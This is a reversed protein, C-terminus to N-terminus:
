KSSLEMEKLSPTCEISSYQIESETSNLCLSSVGPHFNKEVKSRYPTSHSNQYHSPTPPIPTPSISPIKFFPEEGGFGQVSAGKLTIKCSLNQSTGQDCQADFVVRPPCTANEKVLIELLEKSKKDYRVENDSM